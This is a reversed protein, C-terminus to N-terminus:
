WVNISSQPASSFATVVRQFIVTSGVATVVRQFIVTSGVSLSGGCTPLHSHLRRFTTAVRQFIVTSGVSLSDGCTPLHGHLRRFATVVRQFIVTSVVSLSDGCTPIHGHLRRFPQWWVMSSLHYLGSSIFDVTQSSSLVKLISVSTQLPIRNM